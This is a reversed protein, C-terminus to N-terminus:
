LSDHGPVPAISATIHMFDRLPELYEGAIRKMANREKLPETERPCLLGSFVSVRSNM